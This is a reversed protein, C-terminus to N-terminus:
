KKNHIRDMYFSILLTLAYDFVLFVINAIILFITIAIAKTNINIFRSIINEIGALVDIGIVKQFIVFATCFAINFFLIKYIYEVTLNKTKEALFKIIGYVGFFIAYLISINIPVIFFGILSSAVYVFTATKINSRIICVPIIASAVTLITLTNIPILSTSYLIISTLAVMIAGLTIDKSKVLCVGKM